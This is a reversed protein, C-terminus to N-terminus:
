AVVGANILCPSPEGTEDENNHSLPVTGGDWQRRQLPPDRTRGNGRRGCTAANRIVCVTNRLPRVGPRGAIVNQSLGAIVNQSLGAGM